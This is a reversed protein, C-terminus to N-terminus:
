LTIAHLLILSFGHSCDDIGLGQFVDRGPPPPLNRLIDLPEGSIGRDLSQVIDVPLPSFNLVEDLLITKLFM